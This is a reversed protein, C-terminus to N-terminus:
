SARRALTATYVFAYLTSVSWPVAITRWVEPTGALRHACWLVAAIVLCSVLPPGLLRMPRPLGALLRGHALELWRKLFLTLLGSLAGQVVFALTMAGAGHARNAFAAWAGMAVFGFAVHVSTARVLQAAGGTETM